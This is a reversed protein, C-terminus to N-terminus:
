KPEGDIAITVCESEGRYAKDLEFAYFAYFEAREQDDAEVEVVQVYTTRVEVQFTKM